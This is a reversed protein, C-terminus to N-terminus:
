ALDLEISIAADATETDATDLALLAERERGIGIHTGHGHIRELQQDGLGPLVDGVEALQIPEIAYRHDVDMEPEVALEGLDIM